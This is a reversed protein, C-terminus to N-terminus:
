SPCTSRLTSVCAGKYPGIASNHQVRWARNVQTQGHDDVWSVRFQIIRESEVLRELLGHRGYEPYRQLFPWLSDIVEKVAQLYEPQHPDRRAVQALFEKPSNYRM